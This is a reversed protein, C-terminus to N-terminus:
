AVCRGNLKKSNALIVVQLKMKGFLNINIKIKCGM